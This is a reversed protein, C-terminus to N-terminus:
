RGDIKALAEMESNTKIAETQTGRDLGLGQKGENYLGDMLENRSKQNGLSNAVIQQNALNTQKNITLKPSKVDALAVLAQRAQNQSKLALSLYKEALEHNNANAGDASKVVLRTFISDLTVAQSYLMKELLEGKANKIAENDAILSHMFDVWYDNSDNRDSLAFSGAAFANRVETSEAVARIKKDSM